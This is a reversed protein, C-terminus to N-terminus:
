RAPAGRPQSSEGLPGGTMSDSEALFGDGGDDGRDHDTPEAM